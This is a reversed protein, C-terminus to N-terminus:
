VLLVVSCCPLLSTSATSLSCRLNMKFKKKCSLLPEKFICSSSPATLWGCWRLLRARSGGGGSRSGKRKTTPLSGYSRGQDLNDQSIADDYFKFNNTVVASSSSSAAADKGLSSFLPKFNEHQYITSTCYELVDM